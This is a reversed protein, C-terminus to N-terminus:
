NRLKRVAREIRGLAELLVARSCGFNLRMFGEGSQGFTLGDNLAVKAQKLFFENLAGQELGLARCDLWALYTGEPRILKIEPIKTKLFEDLLKLNETLYAILQDAYYACEEYAVKFALVGFNSQTNMRKNQRQILYRKRMRENPIIVAATRLGPTNFTKSPNICIMAHEKVDESLSLIPTHRHGEFVLDGHIEDSILFVDHQVCLQAVRELEERSFVRGVPNHPNCLIMLKTREHSLQSALEDFNIRYAEGDFRLRNEVKVRGNHTIVDHFPPYVPTQIVVHDGVNTFAEICIVLATVVSPAFETWKQEISLGFRDHMWKKAASRLEATQDLYGYIGHEVRDRLADIIPQPCKFDTDAVWMPIVDEGYTNYKKSDSWKRDVIQDFDHRLEGHAM